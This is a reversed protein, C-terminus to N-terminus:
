LEHESSLHVSILSVPKFGPYWRARTGTPFSCLEQHQLDSFASESCRCLSTLVLMPPRQSFTQLTPPWFSYVLLFFYKVYDLAFMLQGRLYESPLLHTRVTPQLLKLSSHSKVNLRTTAWWERWTGKWQRHFIFIEEVHETEIERSTNKGNHSSSISLICCHPSSLLNGGGLVQLATSLSSHSSSRHSPLNLALPQFPIFM